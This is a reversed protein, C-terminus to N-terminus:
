DMPVFCVHWGGCPIDANPPLATTGFLELSGLFTFTQSPQKARSTRSLADRTFRNVRAVRRENNVKGIDAKVGFDYTGISLLLTRFSITAFIM